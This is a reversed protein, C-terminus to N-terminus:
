PTQPTVSQTGCPVAYIVFGDNEYAVPLAHAAPKELVAYQADLQCAARTLAQTSLSTYARATIQVNTFYDAGFQALAGPAVTEFRPMWNTEYGPQFAAMAVESLTAASAREAHVRWDSQQINWIHPPTIFRATKPTNERAWNQAKVWDTQKGYIYIGPTWFQILYATVYVAVMVPPLAAALAKLARLNRIRTVAAWVLVTLAPLPSFVFTGALSWFAPRPLANSEMMKALANAFFLYGLILTWLGIRTIQSQIVITVPLWLVTIFNVALVVIGAWVFLSATRTTDPQDARAYPAAIFFMLIASIGGILSALTGAHPGVMVFLHFFLTRTLLALWEPRLTFDVPNGTSKWVLVPAAALVFLALGLAVQKWGIRRIEFLCALGFMALIFNVSVVHINYMLGAIFFALPVRGRLFQNIAILLFPLVFTRSLPAMEFVPFGVFGLHPVIFGVTGLLSALPRRFLTQSLDWLAWYALYTCVLHTIFLAPELWGLRLFFEFFYWYFSYYSGRLQIFPDGPYLTPDLDAKLLPIHMAQDFTGFHYGVVLLTAATAALFFLHRLRADQQLQQAFASLM